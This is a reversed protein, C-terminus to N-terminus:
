IGDFAIDVRSTPCDYFYNRSSRTTSDAVFRLLIQRLSYASVTSAILRCKGDRFLTLVAKSPHVDVFLRTM